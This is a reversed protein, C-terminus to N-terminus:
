EHTFMCFIRYFASSTAWHRCIHSYISFCVNFSFHAHLLVLYIDFLLSFAEFDIFFCLIDGIWAIIKMIKCGTHFASARYVVHVSFGPMPCLGAGFPQVCLHNHAEHGMGSAPVNDCGSEAGDHWCDASQYWAQRDYLLFSASMCYRHSPWGTSIPRDNLVKWFLMPLSKDCLANRWLGMGGDHWAPSLSKPEMGATLTLVAFARLHLMCHWLLAGGRVCSLLTYVLLWRCWPPLESRRFM